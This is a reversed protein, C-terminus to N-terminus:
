SDFFSVFITHSIYFHLLLIHEYFSSFILFFFHVQHYRNYAHGLTSMRSGWLGVYDTLPDLGQQPIVLYSQRISGDSYISVSFTAGEGTVDSSNRFEQFLIHYATADIDYIDQGDGLTQSLSIVRSSGSLTFDFQSFYPAITNSVSSFTICQPTHLTPLFFFQSQNPITPLYKILPM